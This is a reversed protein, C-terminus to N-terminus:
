VLIRKQGDMYCAGTWKVVYDGFINGRPANLTPNQWSAAKLIDGKKFQVGKSTTFDKAALFSQVSNSTGIKTMVKIYKKGPKVTISECFEKVMNDRVTKETGTKPNGWGVYDKKINEIYQEIQKQM